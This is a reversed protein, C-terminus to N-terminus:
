PLFSTFVQTSPTSRHDASHNHVTPRCARGAQTAVDVHDIISSNFFMGMYLGLATTLGGRRTNNTETVAAWWFGLRRVAVLM